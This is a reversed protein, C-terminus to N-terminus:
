DELGSGIGVKKPPHECSTVLALLAQLQKIFLKGGVAAVDPVGAAVRATM